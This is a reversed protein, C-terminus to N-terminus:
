LRLILVKSNQCNQLSVTLEAAATAQDQKSSPKALGHHERLAEQMHGQM